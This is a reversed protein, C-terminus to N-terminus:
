PCTGNILGIFQKNFCFHGQLGSAPASCCDPLTPNQVGSTCDVDAHCMRTQGNLNQLMPVCANAQMTCMTGSAQGNNFPVCCPDGGCDEPGDCTFPIGGDPCSQMCSLTVMNQKNVACCLLGMGCTQNGCPVGGFDPPPVLDPLVVLDAPPPQFDPPISQDIVVAQDIAMAQDVVMAQDIAMAQDITMAQDIAVAQDIAMAQDVAMAQDIAMAGDSHTAQDGNVSRDAVALDGATGLDGEGAHEDSGCGSAALLTVFLV